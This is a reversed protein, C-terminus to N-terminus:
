QDKQQDKLRNPQTKKTAGERIIRVNSPADIGIKLKSLGNPLKKRHIIVSINEGIYIKKDQEVSLWLM